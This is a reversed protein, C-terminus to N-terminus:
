RWDIEQDRQRLRAKELSRGILRKLMSIQPKLTKLKTM